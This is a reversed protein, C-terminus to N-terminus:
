TEIRWSLDPHTRDLALQVSLLMIVRQYFGKRSIGAYPREECFAEILPRYIEPQFFEPLKSSPGLLTDRLYRKFDADVWTDLPIGFGMKPKNAVATPLRRQAVARLVRKCTRGDVKLRYPLSLGFACLDEDLLPVRVELSEKMSAMDVKFLFDNALILRVNVETAHAALRELRSVGPPLYHEWQAEFLRRIPLSEADLCLHSLEQEHVWCFLDQIISTDDAGVLDRFRQPLHRPIVGLRALPTLAVPASRWFVLPLTQWRAIRAIQWYLPYGGFGEDGGDGSLAVTVRRRMARCVANVAFLSTDAFPQGAHLLLSTVHEWTGGHDDMDLTEHHSGIHEAVAVAAWTEDYQPESFRV